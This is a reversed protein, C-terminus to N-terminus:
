KPLRDEYIASFKILITASNKKEFIDCNQTEGFAAELHM